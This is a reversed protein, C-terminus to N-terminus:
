FVYDFFLSKFFRLITLLNRLQIWMNYFMFCSLFKPLFLFLIFVKNLMEQYQPMSRMAESMERLDNVKEKKYLKTAKNEKVFENFNDLIWNITDAIHMHRLTPWLPDTEGLAIEKSKSEGATTVSTFRFISWTVM